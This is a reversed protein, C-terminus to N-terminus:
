GDEAALKKAIGLGGGIWAGTPGVLLLLLRSWMPQTAAQPMSVIWMVVMLGMLGFVHKRESHTAITATVFGGFIAALLTFGLTFLLATLPLDVTPDALADPWFAGLTMFLVRALLSMGFYGGIVALVSRVM